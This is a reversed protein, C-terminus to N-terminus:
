IETIDISATPKILSAADSELTLEDSGRQKSHQLIEFVSASTFKLNENDAMGALKHGLFTAATLDGPGNPPDEIIPHMALYHSESNRFYNGTTNAQNTMASTVLVSEAGLREAADIMDTQYKIKQGGTLWELEYRNPTATDCTPIFEDRIAEATEQAVYLGSEDGIVPDCVHLVEPNGRKLSQVLTKIAHIQDANAMYGTLIAQVEEIWPANAIDEIFNDFAQQDPVIRTAPGHGPHWPLTITPIAWVPFGLTELAFVAARNGVSGRAVHSSIVIISPKRM